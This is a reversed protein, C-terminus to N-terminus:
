DEKFSIVSLGNHICKAVVMAQCRLLLLLKHCYYFLLQGSYKRPNDLFIIDHRGLVLIILLVDKM